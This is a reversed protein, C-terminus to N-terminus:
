SVCLHRYLQIAALVVALLVNCEYSRLTRYDFNPRFWDINWYEQRGLVTQVLTIMLSVFYSTFHRLNEIGMDDSNRFLGFVQAITM